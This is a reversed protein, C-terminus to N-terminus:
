NREIMRPVQTTIRTRIVKGHDSLHREIGSSAGGIMFINNGLMVMSGQSAEPLGELINEMEETMLGTDRAFRNSLTLFNDFDPKKEWEALYRVGEQLIVKKKEPHQIISKTSLEGGLICFIVETDPTILGRANSMSSAGPVMRHVFGGISQAIADGLGAGLEVEAIHTARLALIFPNFLNLHTAAALCTAFTGAASMGFGQGMPAQLQIDIEMDLSLKPLMHELAMRTVPADSAEGNISIGLIGTGARFSIESTAGLETCFGLGRSGKKIPDPDTDEVTFIGTIHGPCYAKIINASTQSAM